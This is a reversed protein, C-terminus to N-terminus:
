LCRYNGKMGNLLGLAAKRLAWVRAIDDGYVMSCHYVWGSDTLAKAVAEGREELKQADDDALEVVLIAAPDGQVFFRNKSQEINSKSLELVNSDMLEVARPCHKLAVLNAKFVDELKECHACVLM